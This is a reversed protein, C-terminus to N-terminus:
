DVGDILFTLIESLILIVKNLLILASLTLLAERGFTRFAMQCSLLLSIRSCSLTM